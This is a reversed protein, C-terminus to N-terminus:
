YGGEGDIVTIDKSVNNFGNMCLFLEVPDDSQDSCGGIHVTKGKNLNEICKYYTSKDYMGDELVSEITDGDCGCQDIIFADLVDKTKFSNAYQSVDVEIEMKIKTTGDTAIIFSSSSSNSVFGNRTKM